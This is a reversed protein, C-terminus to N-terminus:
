NTQNEVETQLYNELLFKTEGVKIEEETLRRYSPIKESVNEFNEKFFQKTDCASPM